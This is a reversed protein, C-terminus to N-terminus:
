PLLSQTLTISDSRVLCQVSQEPEEMPDWTEETPSSYVINLTGSLLDRDFSNLAKTTCLLEAQEEVASDGPYSGDELPTIQFTGFVQADHPVTCPTVEVMIVNSDDSPYTFCDGTRLDSLTAPRPSATEDLPHWGRTLGIGIVVTAVGLLATSISIGAIAM